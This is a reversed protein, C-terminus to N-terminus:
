RMDSDNDGEPIPSAAHRALAEFDVFPQEGYSERVGEETVDVFVSQTIGSPRDYQISVSAGMFEQMLVSQLSAIDQCPERRAFQRILFM